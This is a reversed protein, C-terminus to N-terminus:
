RCPRHCPLHDGLEVRRQEVGGDVVGLRRELAVLGLEALRLAVVLPDLGEVLLPDRGVGVEVGGLVVEVDGTGRDLRRVRRDLPRPLVEGVGRDGRRDGPRDDLPVHVDPLRHRGAERGGLQEEDGVVERLHLDEGRHVLAVDALDLLPLADAERDLGVRVPLEGAGDLLDPQLRRDVLVDDVVGHDDGDGVRVALQQGAHRRRDLEDHGAGPVHELHGVGREAEPGAVSDDRLHARPQLLLAGGHACAPSPPGSWGPGGPPAAPGPSRAHAGPSALPRAHRRRPARAAVAAAPRALHRQEVVEVLVPLDRARRHAAADGVALVRLDPPPRELRAQLHDGPRRLGGARGRAVRELWCPPSRCPGGGAAESLPPVAIDLWGTM